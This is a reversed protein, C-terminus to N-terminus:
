LRAINGTVEGFDAGRIHRYTRESAADLSVNLWLKPRAGVLLALHRDNLLTLNTNVTLQADPHFANSELARWFVPSALPEGIGHLQASSVVACAEALSDLIQEPMHRPRDVADIAQPCMVCRLNCISTSEITIRTPLNAVVLKRAAYERAMLATNEDPTRM